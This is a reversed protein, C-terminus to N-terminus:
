TSLRVEPITNSSGSDITGFGFADLANDFGDGGYDFGGCGFCPPGTTRIGGPDHFEIGGPFEPQHTPESCRRTLATTQTPSFAFAAPSSRGQTKSSESDNRSALKIREGAVHSLTVPLSPKKTSVLLLTRYRRQAERNQEKRKAEYDM